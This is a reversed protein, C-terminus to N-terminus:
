ANTPPLSESPPMMDSEDKKKRKGTIFRWIFGGAAALGLFILKGFKALVALVGVKALVKGAVLGGITWAAIKDGSGEDFDEYRNGKTFTVSSSVLPLNKNVIELEDMRAVAKIVMVGKRGLVRIDYNLVHAEASDGVKYEKAWHLIKKNKDYFPKAAWGILELPVYGLKVREKDAEASEEKLEKLLDDYDIDEADDDKVFGMDDFAITYGVSNDALPSDKEAFLM